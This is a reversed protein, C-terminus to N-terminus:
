YDLEGRGKKYYVVALIEDRWLASFLFTVVLSRPLLLASWHTGEGVLLWLAEWRSGIAGSCLM